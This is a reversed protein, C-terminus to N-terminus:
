SFPTQLYRSGDVTESETEGEFEGNEDKGYGGDPDIDNGGSEGCAEGGSEKTGEGDGLGGVLGGESEGDFGGSSELGGTCWGTGQGEGAEVEFSWHDSSSAAQSSKLLIIPEIDSPVTYLLVRELPTSIATIVTQASPKFELLLVTTWIQKAKESIRASRRPTEGTGWDFESIAPNGPHSKLYQELQKRNIIEKSTPTIFIIKNKKPTGAKKPM